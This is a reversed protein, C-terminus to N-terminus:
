RSRAWCRSRSASSPSSRRRSPWARPISSTPRSPSWTAPRVRRGRRDEGASRLGEEGGGSRGAHLTLRKLTPKQEPKERTRYKDFRYARLRAGQAIHAAMEAPASNPRRRDRRGGRGRCARRGCQPRRRDARRDGAPDRCRPFRGQRTRDAPDAGSRDGRAGSDRAARRAPGQLPRREAGPRHGGQDAQRAAPGDADASAGGARRGRHHGREAAGSKAFAIKM